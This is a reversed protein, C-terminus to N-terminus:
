SNRSKTAVILAAAAWIAIPLVDGMFGALVAPGLAAFLAAKYTPRANM